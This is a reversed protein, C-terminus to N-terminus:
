ESLLEDLLEQGNRHTPRVFTSKVKLNKTITAITTLAVLTPLDLCSFAIIPRYISNM